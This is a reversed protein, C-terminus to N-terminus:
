LDKGPDYPFADHMGESQEFTIRINLEVKEFSKIMKSKDRSTM